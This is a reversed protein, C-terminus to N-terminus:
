IKLRYYYEIIINLSYSRQLKNKKKKLNQIYFSIRYYYESLIVEAAMFEDYGECASYDMKWKGM